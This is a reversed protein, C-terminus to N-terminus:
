ANLLLLLGGVTYAVMVGLMPYQSRVAVKEPYLEVSRDHAAIVGCVHGVVIAAVQVYAITNPSVVTFDILDDATGFLDWGEGLPDSLLAVFAQGEFVLLSFYHAISYALVIPVLSPVWRWAQEISGDGDGALIGVLRTAGIFLVAVTGIVLLLGVTNVMTLDWDRRTGVIDGWLQTRSFGDFTTGGLLVLIVALTGPMPAVQSLGSGPWRLRLRGAADRHFPALAALLTFLVAFGDATRIWGAGFRTAGGVMALTYVGLFLGVAATSGPEHYALELWLFVGVGAAAPWHTAWLGTATSKEPDRGAVRDLLAAITWLPNIRRWVDGFVASVIQMGVWFVVYFATPALNAAVSDVGFWAAVLTTVFLALMLVQAVLVLGRGVGDFWSPVERGSAAAALRPRPWLIRLAVFSILLAFAASYAFLWVPLPLDARSGVGHAGAPAAGAIVTSAVLAGVTMARRLPKM